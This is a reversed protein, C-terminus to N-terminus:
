GNSRSFKINDDTGLCLYSTTPMHRLQKKGSKLAGVRCNLPARGLPRRIVNNTREPKVTERCSLTNNNHNSLNRTLPQITIQKSDITATTCVISHKITKVFSHPGDLRNIRLRVETKYTIEVTVVRFPQTWADSIVMTYSSKIKSSNTVIIVLNIPGSM